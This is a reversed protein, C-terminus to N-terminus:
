RNRDKCWREKEDRSRRWSTFKGPVIAACDLVHFMDFM